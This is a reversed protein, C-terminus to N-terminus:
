YQVEICRNSFMKRYNNNDLLVQSKILHCKYNGLIRFKVIKICLIIVEFYESSVEWLIRFDKQEIRLLECYESTVVTAYRPTDNLISEGFATGIGLTCLTIGDQTFFVNYWM